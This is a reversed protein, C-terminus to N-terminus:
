PRVLLQQTGTFGAAWPYDAQRLIHVRVPYSGAGGSIYYRAQWRGHSDTRATAINRWQGRDFAQVTIIAGTTPVHGGRLVGWFQAYNGFTVVRSVGLTSSAPVLLKAARSTASETLPGGGYVAEIVRSPGPPLTAQWSGDPATRVVAVTHWANSGDDPAALIGVPVHALAAGDATAFWGNITTRQGYGIRKVLNDRTISHCRLVHAFRGRDGPDPGAPLRSDRARVHHRVPGARRDKGVM